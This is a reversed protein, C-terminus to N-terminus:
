RLFDDIGKRADPHRVNICMREAAYDYADELNDYKIQEYFMEKGLRIAFNSKSSIRRALEYTEDVLSSPSTVANVLGCSLAENASILDGTLLMHM